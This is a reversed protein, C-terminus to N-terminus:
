SKILYLPIGKQETIYTKRGFMKFFTNDKIVYVANLKNGANPSRSIMWSVEQYGHLENEYGRWFFICTYM